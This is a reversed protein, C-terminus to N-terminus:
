EAVDARCIQRTDSSSHCDFDAGRPLTEINAADTNTTVGDAPEVSLLRSIGVGLSVTYLHRRSASANSVLRAFV